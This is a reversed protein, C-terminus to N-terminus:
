SRILIPPRGSVPWIIMPEASPLLWFAWSHAVLDALCSPAMRRWLATLSRKPSQRNHRSSAAAWIEAQGSRDPWASNAAPWDTKGPPAPSTPPSSTPPTGTWSQRPRPRLAHHHAPRRALRSGARGAAPRRRRARRHHVRAAAHAARDDQHDRRPPRGPPRDARRRAPGAAPRRRGPLDARRMREGIALDIARATRPALPITVVKGGKRTIVLTRHGREIGLAEIDAGTAESVRLGNLALLSILAHEAPPGLGAAVLLAGVENRDLGTAHSEYDLRPRRVHAAPSHELLEEEVAYRYFGAITCLRRTITARARGRAELDRAFCEIDARRAEFLRLHHQQCWTAFQRLDLAYAERTLGTYGALFGALALREPETFVPEVAAVATSTSTTAM